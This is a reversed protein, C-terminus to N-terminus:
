QNKCANGTSTSQSLYPQLQSRVWQWDVPSNPLVWSNIAYLTTWNWSASVPLSLDPTGNVLTFGVGTPDGQLDTQNTLLFTTVSNGSGILDYITEKTTVVGLGKISLGAGLTLGATVAIAKNGRDDWVLMYNGTGGIGATVSFSIGVGYTLLGSPDTYILPNNRAYTFPQIGLGGPAPLKLLPDESLFRGVTPDYYRARLYYLSTASDLAQGAFQFPNDPPTPLISNGWADYFYSLEPMGASNTLQIVSGLGDYQFFDNKSGQASDILNLGYVYSSPAGARYSDQLVVPLTTALDNVYTQTSAGTTQSVRNGDGDYVFAATRGADVSVLRNAADFGYTRKLHTFSDTVSTENGDADYTFSRTGAKLLRNSADYAYNALGLISAESLRNGVADYTWSTKLPWTQASTLENIADYSYNTPIGAETVVTRNGVADLTYKFALPPVGVTTNVVSTLRNAADYNFDIRAQNPYQTRLLSGAPNYAYQTVHSLWDTVSLLREDADYGYIVVKGDPYTLSARRGNADYSYAVTMSGPFTVSTLRDLADYAYSTTGTWDTMSLRNGDADYSYATNKGDAYGISILRNMADYAFGNTQGKADIMAVVNGVPDYGYSTAFSLPDTANVIRNLSDYQYTTTNGKANTFGVRNNDQDYSYKTVHGLADTVTSLNNTADYAYSTAHGNADTVSLLNGVSDYAFASRNGLPDVVKTLRGLADYTSTATHSNPDTVSILRGDGDYALTSSNGLADRIGTLDGAAGYSFSTTNGKADRRGTLEGSSDYALTTKDGLVDLIGTLNGHSDYSFTTTQNKPNTVSLLNNNADYTFATKHSLPDTVGTNNGNADYSFNTVNGNQNTISTRDNNSDYTYSTTHGLADLISVIRLSTDYTHVTVASRADTITTQGTTPTNYAFQWTFGRGNTQSVVRGQADYANQLLTNGNPLKIQTVHHNTDYVHTTVGGLPDTATALNNSGDYSYTETRGLPDTVTTIRGNADYALSLPRYGSATVTVLNGSGDYSLQVANGNKDDIFALKGNSLFYYQTQNKQTLTFTGDTNAVLTNYVGAQPVYVGGTLTFTEGHGDGFRINAVGTATQTLVVNYTHSWNAGLPGSYKDQANYSRQFVLPLGRGPISTDTHQYFYNGTGTNVPEGGYVSTSNSQPSGSSAPPVQYGPYGSIVPIGSGFANSLVWSDQYTTTGSLDSVGGYVLFANSSPNYLGMHGFVARNAPPTGGPFVQTWAPAQNGTGNANSLMWGDSFTPSAAGVGYGSSGGFIIMQNSASNYSAAHYGRAPPLAGAPASQVWQPTVPTGTTRDVGSAGILVWTDNLDSGNGGGFLIMRDTTGDYVVTHELRAPPPGGTPLLQIWQPTGGQGNAYTLAWVDNLAICPYPNCDAGGLIIMRNSNADYVAAAAERYPIPGGTPFLQAWQSTAPQGTARDLGNANTLTWVDNLNTASYYLSDGCCITMTNSNPDYVAVHSHRSSPPGGTPNLQIWTSSGGTGDANTLVWVDDLTPQGSQCVGSACGGFVILRNSLPDYVNTQFKRPAPPGGSTSLQTWTPPNNQAQGINPTFLLIVLAIQLIKRFM